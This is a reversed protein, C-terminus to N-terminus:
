HPVMNMHSHIEPDAVLCSLLSCKEPAINRKNSLKHPEWHQSAAVTSVSIHITILKASCSSVWVLSSFNFVQNLWAWMKRLMKCQPQFDEKCVEFNLIFYTESSARQSLFLTTYWFNLLKIKVGNDPSVQLEENEQFKEWLAPPPPCATRPPSSLFFRRELSKYVKDGCTWLIQHPFSGGPIIWPLTLHHLSSKKLLTHTLSCLSSVDNTASDGQNNFSLKYLIM